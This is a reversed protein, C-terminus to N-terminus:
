LARECRESGSMSDDASDTTSSSLESARAFPRAGVAVRVKDVLRDADAGRGHARLYRAADLFAGSPGEEVDWSLADLEDAARELDALLDATDSSDSRAAVQLALARSQVSVQNNGLARALETMRAQWERGEDLQGRDLALSGQFWVAMAVGERYGCAEFLALSRALLGTAKACDGDLRALSALNVLVLGCGRRHELAEFTALAARWRHGAEALEARAYHLAGLNLETTAISARAGLKEKIALSRLLSERAGDGDGRLKQVMALNNIAKAQRSLDNAKRALEVAERNLAEARALDDSRAALSALGRVAESAAGLDGAAVLGARADAYIEAAAARRNTTTLLRARLLDIRHGLLSDGTQISLNRAEELRPFAREPQGRQQAIKAWHLAAHARLQDDALKEAIDSALRALRDAAGLEGMNFLPDFADAVIRADFSTATDPFGACLIEFGPDRFRAQDILLDRMMGLLTPRIPPAHTPAWEKDCMDCADLVIEARGTRIARRMIGIVAARLSKFELAREVLALLDRPGEIRPYFLETLLYEFLGDFAFRVWCEDDRWDEVLVGLDLLQVYASDRQANTLHAALAPIQYLRDRPISDAAEDALRKVLTQLFRRREPYGGGSEDREVVVDNMFPEMAEDISLNAPLRKFTYASMLLRLFLPVRMLAVTSGDKALESYPTLPRFVHVGMPSAGDEASERDDTSAGEAVFSQDPRRYERYRGYAEEVQESTLPQLPVLLSKQSTADRREEIAFYQDAALIGLRADPALREYAATRISVVLRVDPYSSAQEVLADIAWILESTAGPHEHLSDVILRVRAGDPTLRQLSALFDEFFANRIGLDRLIRRDLRPDRLSAARYYLVLDGAARWREAWGALLTSKGMGNKGAVVFGRYDSREFDKLLREVGPREITVEPVYRGSKRLGELTERAGRDAATRLGEWTMSDLTLAQSRGVKEKLLARWKSLQGQKEVHRGSVSHYIVSTRTNGEFTLVDWPEGPIARATDAEPGEPVDDVDLFIYLPLIRGRAPDYLFLRSEPRFDDAPSLRELAASPHAGMLRYARLSGDKAPSGPAYFLPYRSSFRAQELVSALIPAYRLLDSAAQSHSQNYGHALSNRYRILAQIRGFKSKKVRVNGAGDRYPREISVKDRCRSELHQYARALEPAFWDVGRDELVPLARALMLNWASILPRQFDRSLTHGVATDEIEEHSLYESALQLAWLKLVHTFSDVLLKCRQRPDRETLYHLYTRAVPYPFSSIVERDLATWERQQTLWSPSTDALRAEAVEAPAGRTVDRGHSHRGAAPSVVAARLVVPPSGDEPVKVVEGTFTDLVFLGGPYPHGSFRSM